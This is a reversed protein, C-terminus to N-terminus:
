TKTRSYKYKRNQLETVLVQRTFEEKRPFGESQKTYVMVGINEEKTLYRKKGQM